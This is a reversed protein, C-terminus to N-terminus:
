QQFFIKCTKNIGSESVLKLLYIGNIVRQGNSSTGDWPLSLLGPTIKGKFLEKIQRGRIDYLSINIVDNIDSSFNITSTFRFPNPYVNLDKDNDESLDTVATITKLSKSAEATGGYIGLDIVNGNPSPELAYNDAPNGKDICSSSVNDTVWKNTSRDWHGQASKLHYDKNTSNVFLPDTAMNGTGAPMAFSNKWFNTYTFPINSGSGGDDSKLSGSVNTIISNRCTNGENKTAYLFRVLTSKGAGDFVCNKILNNKADWMEIGKASNLFLCNSLTNNYCTQPAASGDSNTPGEVTNQFAVSTRTGEIHCFNFKNDHAGDRINIGESWYDQAPNDYHGIATCNTFENGYAEHAVFFYEGMDYAACNIIKNNTSHPNPYKGGKYVDKIGIGHGPHGGQLSHLNYAQCNQVTINQADGMVIHYDTADNTYRVSYSNCNKLTGTNSQMMCFNNMGADSIQCNEVLFNNSAIFYIGVGSVGMGIEDMYVNRITIHHAGYILFGSSSKTVGINRFEIYSKKDISIGIVGMETLVPLKTHDVGEGPKNLSTPSDGPTNQYGQFIIPATATGSNEVSVNEGQYLGAKIYIVDGAVAQAAAHTVTGWPTNASLGNNSNKGTTSVYYTTGSATSFILLLLIIYSTRLLASKGSCLIQKNAAVNRLKVLM